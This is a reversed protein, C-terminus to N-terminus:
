IEEKKLKSVRRIALIDDIFTLLQEPTRENIDDFSLTYATEEKHIVAVGTKGKLLKLDGAAWLKETTRLKKNIETNYTITDILMPIFLMNLFIFAVLAVASVVYFWAKNDQGILWFILAGVSMYVLFELITLGLKKLFLMNNQEKRKLNTM